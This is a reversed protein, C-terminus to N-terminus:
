DKYRRSQLFFGNLWLNNCKMEDLASKVSTQCFLFFMKKPVEFTYGMHPKIDMNSRMLLNTGVLVIGQM